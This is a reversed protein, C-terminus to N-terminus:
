VSLNHKRQRKQTDPVVEPMVQEPQPPSSEEFILPHEGQLDTLKSGINEILVDMDCCFKTDDNYTYKLNLMGQRAKVLDSVISKCILTNGRHIHHEIIEFSRTIVDKIFKLSNTRNDPYIVSRYIKTSFTNPQRNVHRVNIKEDKQIHGIFKLRSIVEEHNEMAIDGLQNNLLVHALGFVTTFTNM